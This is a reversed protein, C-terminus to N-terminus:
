VSARVDHRLMGRHHADELQFDIFGNVLSERLNSLLLVDLGVEGASAGDPKDPKREIGLRAM